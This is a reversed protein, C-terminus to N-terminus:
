ALLPLEEPGHGRAVDDGLELTLAEGLDLLAHDVEVLGDLRKADVAHRDLQVRVDLGFHLDPHDLLLVARGARGHPRGGARSAPGMQSATHTAANYTLSACRGM